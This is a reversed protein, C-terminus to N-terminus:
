YIAHGCHICFPDSRKIPRDCSPCFRMQYRDLVIKLDREFKQDSSIKRTDHYLRSIAEKGYGGLISFAIAKLGEEPLSDFLGEDKESRLGRYYSYSRGRILRFSVVNQDESVDCTVMIKACKPCSRFIVNGPVPQFVGDEDTSKREMLPLHWDVDSGCFPCTHVDGICIQVWRWPVNNM